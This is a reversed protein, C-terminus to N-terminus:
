DQAISGDPLVLLEIEEFSQLSPEVDTTKEIIRLKIRLEEDLSRRKQELWRIDEANEKKKAKLDNICDVCITKLAL